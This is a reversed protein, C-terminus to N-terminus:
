NEGETPQDGSQGTAADRGQRLGRHFSSLKGRV